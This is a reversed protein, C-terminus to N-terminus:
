TIWIHSEKRAKIRELEIDIKDQNRRRVCPIGREERYIQLCALVHIFEEDSANFTRKVIDKYVKSKPM